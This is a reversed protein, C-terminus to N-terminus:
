PVTFLKAIEEPGVYGLGGRPAVEGAEECVDAARQWNWLNQDGLIIM